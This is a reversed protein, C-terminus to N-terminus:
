RVRGIYDVNLSRHVAISGSLLVDEISAVFRLIVSALFWRGKVRVLMELAWSIM